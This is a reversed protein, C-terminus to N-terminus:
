LGLINTPFTKELLLRLIDESYDSTVNQGHSAFLPCLKGRLVYPWLKAAGAMEDMHTLVIHTAGMREGLDFAAGILSSEYMGNVVLVRTAIDLVDLRQRLKGWQERESMPMGPLDVYLVDAKTDVSNQGGDRQLPVGLVDCFLCLADDPNPTDSDLKMVEVNKRNLFVDNSLRKCLATTKGVGPTGFFAIRSTVPTNEIEQYEIRLRRNVEALARSLPLEDLKGGDSGGDYRLSGLLNEDFGTKRLVTWVNSPEHTKSAPKQGYPTRNARVPPPVDGALEADLNDRDPDNAPKGADTDVAENQAEIQKAPRKTRSTAAPKEPSAEKEPLTAIIELKPSNLFRSLGEGDIQKVSIVKAEPGLRERLTQIAEEASQVVFRYKKGREIAGSKTKTTGSAESM